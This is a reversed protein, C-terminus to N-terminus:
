LPLRVTASLGSLGAVSHVASWKGAAAACGPRLVPVIDSQDLVEAANAVTPRPRGTAATISVVAVLGAEAAMGALGEAIARNRDEAAHQYIM